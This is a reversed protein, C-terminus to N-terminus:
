DLRMFDRSRPKRAPNGLRVSGAAAPFIAPTAIRDVPVEARGAFQTSPKRHGGPFCHDRLPKRSYYRLRRLPFPKGPKPDRRRERQRPKSRDIWRGTGHPM